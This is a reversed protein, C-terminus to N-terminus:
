ITGFKNSMLIKWAEGTDGKEIYPEALKHLESELEKDKYSKFLRSVEAKEKIKLVEERSPLSPDSGLRALQNGKLVESNRIQAPMNDFGINENGKPPSLQFLGNLSRTYWSKGLRGVHDMKHPDPYGNDGLYNENVHILLVECIAMNGGGGVKGYNVLDRMKCELHVPSEKVRYPQVKESNMKTFGAKKFEDVDSPYETSALVAQGIISYTLINIVVEGTEVINNYTDKTTNDRGRRAPSFIVVPPNSGFANFFSFPSLNPNKNKDLTSAFAIPRPAVAGLLNQHLDKLATDRPDIRKMASFLNSRYEVSFQVTKIESM